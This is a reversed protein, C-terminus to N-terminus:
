HEKLTPATNTEPSYKKARIIFVTANKSSECNFSYWDTTKNVSYGNTLNKPILKLNKIIEESDEISENCFSSVASRISDEFTDFNGKHEFTVTCRYVTGDPLSSLTLLTNKDVECYHTNEQNESSFVCDEASLDVTESAKNFGELFINFDMQSSRSCASLMIVVLFASFIRIKMFGSVM